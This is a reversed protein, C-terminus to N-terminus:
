CNRCRLLVQQFVSSSRFSNVCRDGSTTCRVLTHQEDETAGDHCMTCMRSAPDHRTPLHRGQEINLEHTGCRLRSMVARRRASPHDLYSERTLQQKFTRYTRLKPFSSVDFLWRKQERTSIAQRITKPWADRSGMAVLPDDSSGLLIFVPWWVM